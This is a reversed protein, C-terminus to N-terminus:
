EFWVDTVEKTTDSYRLTVQTGTKIDSTQRKEHADGQFILTTPTLKFTTAKGDLTLVISDAAVRQVRGTVSLTEFGKKIQEETPQLVVPQNKQTESQKIPQQTPSQKKSRSLVLIIGGILVAIIVIALVILKKSNRSSAGGIVVETTQAAKTDEVKEAM